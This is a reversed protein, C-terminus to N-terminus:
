EILLLKQAQGNRLKRCLYFCYFYGSKQLFLSSFPSNASAIKRGNALDAIFEGYLFTGPFTLEALM